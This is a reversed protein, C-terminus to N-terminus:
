VPVAAIGVVTGLGALPLSLGWFPSFVLLGSVVAM